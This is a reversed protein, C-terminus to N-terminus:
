NRRMDQWGLSLWTFPRGISVRAVSVHLNRVASSALMATM